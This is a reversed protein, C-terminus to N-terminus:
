NKKKYGLTQRLYELNKYFPSDLAKLVLDKNIPNLLLINILANKLPTLEHKVIDFIIEPDIGRYDHAMRNRLGIIEHWQFQHQTNLLDIEIKKLEEGITLLLRNIANFNMQDNLSLLEEHTHIEKSYIKIKEIAELTTFVYILFGKESM